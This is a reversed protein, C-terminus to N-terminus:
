SAAPAPPQKVLNAQEAYWETLSKNSNKEKWTTRGNDNRDLIVASAASPSNFLVDFKFELVRANNTPVLKGEKIPRDRLQRYVNTESENVGRAKSGSLVIIEGNSQIGNAEIGFKTDRLVVDITKAGTVAEYPTRPSRKEVM